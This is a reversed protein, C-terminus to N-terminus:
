WIGPKGVTPGHPCRASSELQRSQSMWIFQANKLQKLYGDVSRGGIEPNRPQLDSRVQPVSLSALPLVFWRRSGEEAGYLTGRLISRVKLSSIFLGSERALGPQLAPTM